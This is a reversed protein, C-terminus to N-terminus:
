LRDSNSVDYLGRVGKSEIKRELSKITGSTLLPIVNVKIKGLHQILSLVGSVLYKYKANCKIIGIKKNEDWKILRLGTKGAEIEGINELIKWWFVKEIMKRSLIVEPQSSDVIFAIYRSRERLKVPIKVRVVNM